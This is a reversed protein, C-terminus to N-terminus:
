GQLHYLRRLRHDLARSSAKEFDTHIKGDRVPHHRGSHDLRTSGECGATFYTQLKLLEYGSRIVRNLGPEEIGLDAMFEARDEDDLEAIDAEIACCVVVVVANEAAAIERVQDLFPNNEFGDEAVNAIYM